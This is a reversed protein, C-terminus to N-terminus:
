DSCETMRRDHIASFAPCRDGHRILASVKTGDFPHSSLRRGHDRYTTVQPYSMTSM